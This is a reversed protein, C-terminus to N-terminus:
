TVTLDTRPFGYRHVDESVAPKRGLTEDIKPWDVGDAAHATSVFPTFMDRDIKQGNAGLIAVCASVLLLAAFSIIQKPM